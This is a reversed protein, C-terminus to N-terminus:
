GKQGSQEMYAEVRQEFGERWKLLEGRVFAVLDCFSPADPGDGDPHLIDNLEGKLREHETHYLELKEARIRETALAEANLKNAVEIMSADGQAKDLDKRLEDERLLAAALNLRAADFGLFRALWERDTEEPLKEPTVPELHFERPLEPPDGPEVKHSANCASRMEVRGDSHKVIDEAEERSYFGANELEKTYGHGNPQWWLKRDKDWMRVKDNM